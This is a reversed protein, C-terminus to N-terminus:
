WRSGSCSRGGTASRCPPLPPAPQGEGRGRRPVPRDGGHKRPLAGTRLPFGGRRAAPPVAPRGAAQGGSPHALHGPDFVPDRGLGHLRPHPRRVAHDRGVADVPHGPLQLHHRRQVPLQHRAVARQRHLRPHRRRYAPGPQRHRDAGPRVVFSIRYYARDKTWENLFRTTLWRRWRIELFQNLWTAYVAVLIYVVAVECFGPM